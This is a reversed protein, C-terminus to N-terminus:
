ATSIRLPISRSRHIPTHEGAQEFTQIDQVGGAEEVHFDQQKLDNVVNGRADTVLIDLVVLRATRQITYAGGNNQAPTSGAATGPATQEPPSQPEQAPPSVPEPTSPAGPQQAFSLLCAGVRRTMLIM